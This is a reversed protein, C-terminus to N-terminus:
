AGRGLRGHAESIMGSIDRGLQARDAAYVLGSSGWNIVVTSAM